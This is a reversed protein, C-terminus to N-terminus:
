SGAFQEFLERRGLRHAAPHVQEGVPQRGLVAHEVGQERHHLRALDGVGPGLQEFGDRRDEVGAARRAVEAGVDAGLVDGGAQDADEGDDAFGSPL